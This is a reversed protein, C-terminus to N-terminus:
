RFADLTGRVYAIANRGEGTLLYAVVHRAIFALESVVFVARPGRLHRRFFLMRSRAHHYIKISPEGRTSKSGEHLAHADPAM